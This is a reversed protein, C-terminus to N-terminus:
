LALGLKLITLTAGSLNGDTGSILQSDISPLFKFTAVLCVSFNVDPAKAMRLIISNAIQFLLLQAQTHTYKATFTNICSTYGTDITQM